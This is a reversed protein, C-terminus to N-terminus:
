LILDLYQLSIDPCSMGLGGGGRGQIGSPLQGCGGGLAVKVNIM